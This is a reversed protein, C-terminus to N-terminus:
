VTDSRSVTKAFKSAEPAATTTDGKLHTMEGNKVASQADKEICRTVRFPEPSTPIRWNPVFVGQAHSSRPSDFQRSSSMLDGRAQPPLQSAERLTRDLLRALGGLLRPKAPRIFQFARIWAEVIDRPWIKSSQFYAKTSPLPPFKLAM